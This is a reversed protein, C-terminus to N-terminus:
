SINYNKETFSVKMKTMISKNIMLGRKNKM